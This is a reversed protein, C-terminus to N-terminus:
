QQLTKSTPFLTDIDQGLLEAIVATDEHALGSSLRDDSHHDLCAAISDTLFVDILNDIHDARFPM